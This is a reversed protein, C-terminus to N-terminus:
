FPSSLREEFRVAIEFVAYRDTAQSALEGLVRQRQRRRKRYIELWLELVEPNAAM